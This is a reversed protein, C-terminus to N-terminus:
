LLITRGPVPHWPSGGFGLSSGAQRQSYRRWGVTLRKAAFSCMVAVNGRSHTVVYTLVQSGRVVQTKHDEEAERRDV